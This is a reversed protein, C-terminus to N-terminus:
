ALPPPIPLPLPKARPQRGRRKEQRHHRARQTRLRRVEKHSGQRRLGVRLLSRRQKKGLRDHADTYTVRGAKRFLDKLEAWSIRSSLNEVVVCFKTRHPRENNRGRSRSRSRRRRKPSVSKSFSRYRVRGSERFDKYKDRCGKSMEVTIREGQVRLGNLEKVADAADRKDEFEVFGFGNKLDVDLVRGYKKFPDRIDETRVRRGINGVFVSFGYKGM